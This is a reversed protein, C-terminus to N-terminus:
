DNETLFSALCLTIASLCYLTLSLIRLDCEMFVAANICSAWVWLALLFRKETVNM